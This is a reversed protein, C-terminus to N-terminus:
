SWPIFRVKRPFRATKNFQEKRYKCGGCLLYLDDQVRRRLQPKLNRTLYLVWYVHREDICLWVAVSQRCHQCKDRM